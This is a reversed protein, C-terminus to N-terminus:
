SINSQKQCLVKLVFKPLALMRFFRQPQCALRFFWELGAKQMWLPARRVKGAMVDFTGGVGICLPAHLQEFHKTLWKEQKPVGLAVFLIDPKQEGITRILEAEKAGSFFGDHVGIIKVGPYRQEASRRAQEAVGPGAGLFFIRYGAEASRQLLKQALDYGAVREQLPTGLHKAGWVVGAGDPVVFAAQRMIEAFERDSQALMVMEANATVVIGSPENGRIINEAKELAQKMSLRDVGVNLIYAKESM